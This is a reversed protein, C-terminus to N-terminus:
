RRVEDEDPLRYKAKVAALLDSVKRRRGQDNGALSSGAPM